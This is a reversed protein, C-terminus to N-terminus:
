EKSVQCENIRELVKAYIRSKPNIVKNDSNMMCKNKVIYEFWEDEYFVSIVQNDEDIIVDNYEDDDDEDEFYRNVDDQVEIEKMYNKKWTDEDMMDPDTKEDFYFTESIDQRYHAPLKNLDSTYTYVQKTVKDKFDESWENFDTGDYPQKFDVESDILVETGPGVNYRIRCYTQGEKALIFFVAWHCHSYNTDFNAEDVYSPLPCSGPHTHILVNQYQWPMLGKDECEEYFRQLDEEDFEFTAVSCKQKIKGLDTVLLPDDTGTIGKFAVETDGSDRYHLIQTWVNPTFRLKDDRTRLPKM